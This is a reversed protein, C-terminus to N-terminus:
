YSYCDDGEEWECNTEDGEIVECDVVGESENDGCDDEPCVPVNDGM